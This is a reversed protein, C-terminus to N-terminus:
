AIKMETHIKFIHSLKVAYTYKLDGSILMAIAFGNMDFIISGSNGPKSITVNDDNTLVLVDHITRPKDLYNVTLEKSQAFLYGQRVTQTLCDYYQVDIHEEIDLMTLERFEMPNKLKMKQKLIDNYTNGSTTIRAIGYDFQAKIGGAWRQGCDVDVHDVLIDNHDTTEYMTDGKMVHWCSLIHLTKTDTRQLICGLSGFGNRKSKNSIVGQNGQQTQPTGSVIVLPTVTIAGVTLTGYQRKVEAAIAASDVNVQINKQKTKRDVVKFVAKVGAISKIRQEYLRLAEDMTDGAPEVPAPPPPPQNAALPVPIETEGPKVKKEEPKVGDSRVSVIKKLLDFWFPAGLSLMLGTIFFGLLSYWFITSIVHWTKEWGDYHRSGLIVIRREDGLNGLFIRDVVAFPSKVIANANRHIEHIRKNIVELSLSDRTKQELAAQLKRQAENLQTRVGATDAPRASFYRVKLDQLQERASDIAKLCTALSANKDRTLRNLEQLRGTDRAIQTYAKANEKISLEVRHHTMLKDMNWGLGLVMNAESLDKTVRAYGSDLITQAYGTDSGGGTFDKYRVSDKALEIGMAVLQSRAEKDKSLIRAIKITDVNFIVAIIFGLWFLILQLKGKHWGTARDQTENYWTKIKQKFLGIDTGADEAMNRLNRLTAPQIHHTNFNLCFHVKNMDTEGAGKDKLLQILSDAFMEASLYSPKTQSIKTTQEGAKMSLYKIAPYNYFKGAFSDKFDPFEKLFFRKVRYWVGKYQKPNITAYYGDNLMKEISVRLIRSRLGIWSCIIEGLITVLLSYLLFVLILGIFVDLVTSNFM